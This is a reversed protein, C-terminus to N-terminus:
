LTLFVADFSVTIFAHFIEGMSNLLMELGKDYRHM